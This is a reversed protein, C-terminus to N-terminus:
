QRGDVARVSDGNTFTSCCSGNETVMSSIQFFVVFFSRARSAATLDVRVVGAKVVPVVVANCLSLVVVVAGFQHLGSVTVRSCISLFLERNCHSQGLSSPIGNGALISLISLANLTATIVRSAPLLVTVVATWVVRTADGSNVCGAALVMEFFASFFHRSRSFCAAAFLCVDTFASQVESVGADAGPVVGAGACRSEVSGLVDMGTILGM